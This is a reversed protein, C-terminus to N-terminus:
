GITGHDILSRACDVITESTPRRTWGLVREAKATTHRNRRGLGPMISRLDPRRKAMVRVVLNPITRTPVKDAAHGLEARLVDAIDAMWMFEGTALLREGAAEQSTMAALHVDVLDRVDVVELGIKPVRPMAGTLMRRIVQVSGLNDTALIPGFVAGPLVTTLTTPGGSNAIFDWAAREAVTKSKRYAGIGPADPDTWLTEDTVGEVAYSMPSSTNAASTMVVRKVGATTAAKLVRLAGNRAPGIM